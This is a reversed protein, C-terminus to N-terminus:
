TNLHRKKLSAEGSWGYLFLVGMDWETSEGGAKGARNKERFSNGARAM